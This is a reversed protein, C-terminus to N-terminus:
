VLTSVIFTVYTVLALSNNLVVQEVTCINAKVMKIACWYQNRAYLLEFPM